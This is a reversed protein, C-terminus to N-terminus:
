QPNRHNSTFTNEIVDVIRPTTAPGAAQTVHTIHPVRVQPLLLPSVAPVDAVSTAAPAIVCHKLAQKTTHDVAMGSTLRNTLDHPSPRM